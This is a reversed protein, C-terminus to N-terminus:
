EGEKIGIGDLKERFYKYTSSSPKNGIHQSFESLLDHKLYNENILNSTGRKYKEIDEKLGGIKLFNWDIVDEKNKLTWVLKKNEQEMEKCRRTMDEYVNKYYERDLLIDDKEDELRSVKAKYWSLDDILSNREEMMKNYQESLKEYDKVTNNM